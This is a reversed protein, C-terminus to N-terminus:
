QKFGGHLHFLGRQLETLNAGVFTVWGDAGRLIAGGGKKDILVVPRTPAIYMGSWVLDAEEVPTASGCCALAM